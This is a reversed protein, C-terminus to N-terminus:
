PTPAADPAPPRGAATSRHDAYSDIEAKDWVPMPRGQGDELVDVPAPFDPTDELTAVRQKSVGLRKRVQVRSVLTDPKTPQKM